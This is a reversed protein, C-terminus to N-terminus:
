QLFGDSFGDSTIDYDKSEIKKSFKKLSNRLETELDTINFNDKPEFLIKDEMRVLNFKESKGLDNLVHLKKERDPIQLALKNDKTKTLKFKNQDDIKIEESDKFLEM